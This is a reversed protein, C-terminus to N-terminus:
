GRVPIISIAELITERDGDQNRQTQRKGTEEPEDKELWVTKRERRPVHWALERWLGKEMERGSNDEGLYICAEEWEEM